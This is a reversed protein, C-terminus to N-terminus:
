PHMEKIACEERGLFRADSHFKFSLLSLPGLDVDIFAVEEHFGTTAIYPFSLFYFNCQARTISTNGQKRM